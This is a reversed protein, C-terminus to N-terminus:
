FPFAQISKRLVHRWVAETFAQPQSSSNRSCNLMAKRRLSSRRQSPGSPLQRHAARRSLGGEDLVQGPRAVAWLHQGASSSSM